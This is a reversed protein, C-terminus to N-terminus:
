PGRTRIRAAPTAARGPQERDGVGAPARELVGVVVQGGARQPEQGLRGPGACDGPEGPLLDGLKLAAVPGDDIGGLRAVPDLREGSGQGGVAVCRGCSM